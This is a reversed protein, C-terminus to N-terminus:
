HSAGAVVMTLATRRGVAVRWGFTGVREEAGGAAAEGGGVVFQIDCSTLCQGNPFCVLLENPAAAGEVPAVTCCQASHLWVHHLHVQKHAEEHGSCCHLHV